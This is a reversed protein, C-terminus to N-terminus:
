YLGVEPVELKQWPGLTDRYAHWSAFGLLPMTVALGVYFLAFGIGTIVAIMVAWLLMPRWNAMVAKWSTVVATIADAEPNDMLMPISVVAFGFAVLAAVLGVLLYALIMPISLRTMLAETFAQFNEAGGIFLALEATSEALFATTQMSIMFWTLFLLVMIVGVGLVGNPNSRWARWLDRLRVPEGQEDRKSIGYFGLAFIPALFVFGAILQIGVNYAEPVLALLVIIAYLVAILLGYGIALVPHRRLDVWGRRLWHWPQDTTLHRIEPYYGPSVHFHTTAM